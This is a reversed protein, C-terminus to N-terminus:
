KDGKTGAKPDDPILVINNPEERGLVQIELGQAVVLLYNPIEDEYHCFFSINTLDNQGSSFSAGHRTSYQWIFLPTEMFKVGFTVSDLKDSSRLSYLTKGDPSEGVILTTELDMSKVITFDQNIATSIKHSIESPKKDFSEGRFGCGTIAIIFFLPSFFLVRFM